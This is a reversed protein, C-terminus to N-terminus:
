KYTCAILACGGSVACRFDKGEGEEIEQVLEEERQAIEEVDKGLAKEQMWEECEELSM